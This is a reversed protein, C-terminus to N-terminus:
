SARRGTLESVARWAQDIAVSSDAYWASDSNAISVNGARRRVLRLLLLRKVASLLGDFHELLMGGTGFCGVKLFYQRFQMRPFFLRGFKGSSEAQLQDMAFATVRALEDDLQQEALAFVDLLGAEAARLQVGFERPGDALLVPVTLSFGPVAVLCPTAIAPTGRSSPNARLSVVVSKSYRNASFQLSTKFWSICSCCSLHPADTRQAGNTQFCFGARV